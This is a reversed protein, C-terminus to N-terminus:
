VTVGALAMRHKPRYRARGNAIMALVFGLDGGESELVAALAPAVSHMLWTKWGDLTMRVVGGLKLMARVAGGMLVAWWDAEFEAFDAVHARIREPWEDLGHLMLDDLVAAARDGKTEVEFRVPGRKDYVRASRDSTRSGMTFTVGEASNHWGWTDRRTYTRVEGALFADRVEGPTFEGGDLALDVRTAKVRVGRGRWLRVLGFLLEDGLAEFAGGPVSVSCHDEGDIPDFFVKVGLPGLASRRYGHGGYTYEFAEEKVGMARGVDRCVVRWDRWVTLTGWHIGAAVEVVAKVGTNSGPLSGPGTGGLRGAGGVGGSAEAPDVAGHVRAEETGKRHSHSM